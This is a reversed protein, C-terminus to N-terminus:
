WALFGFIGFLVINSVAQITVVFALNRTKYFAVGLVAGATTAFLLEALNAYGAHMAGFIVSTILIGAVAGSRDILQPQLLVRFLLEEVLAVFFIMVISLQILETASANPILAKNALIFHEIFAFEAGILAGLPILVVSRRVSDVGLDSRTMKEHVIVLLLPVFMVGYVIMLWYLTVTPVLAFSLNFVRFVSILALAQILQIREGHLAVIIVAVWVINLAQLGIGLVRYDAFLLGESALILLISILEYRYLNFVTRARAVPLAVRGIDRLRLRHFKVLVESSEARSHKGRGEARVTFSHTTAVSDTLTFQYHGTGDTVTAAVRVMKKPDDTNYLVVPVGIMHAGGGSALQGSINVAYGVFQERPTPAATITTRPVEGKTPRRVLSKESTSHAAKTRQADTELDAEGFALSSENSASVGDLPRKKVEGPM